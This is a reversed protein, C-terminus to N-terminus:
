QFSVGEFPFLFEREKVQILDGVNMPLLPILLLEVDDSPDSLQHYHSSAMGPHTHSHEM